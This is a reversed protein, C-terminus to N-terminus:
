KEPHFTDFHFMNQCKFKLLRTSNNCLKYIGLNFSVCRLKRSLNEYPLSGDFHIFNFIHLKHIHKSSIQCKLIRDGKGGDVQSEQSLRFYFTRFIWDHTVNNSPLGSTPTYLIELCNSFNQVTDDAAPSRPFFWIQFM